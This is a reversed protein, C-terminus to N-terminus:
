LTRKDPALESTKTRQNRERAYFVDRFLELILIEPALRMGVTPLALFGAAPHMRPENRTVDATDLNLSSNSM